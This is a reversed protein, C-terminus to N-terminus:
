LCLFVEKICKRKLIKCVYFSTAWFLVTLSYSAFTNERLFEVFM